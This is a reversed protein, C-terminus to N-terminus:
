GTPEGMATIPGILERFAKELEEPTDKYLVVLEDIQGSAAPDNMRDALEQRIVFNDQLNRRDHHHLGVMLTLTGGIRPVVAVIM